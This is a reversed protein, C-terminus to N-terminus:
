SFSAASANFVSDNINVDFTVSDTRTKQLERFLTYSHGPVLLGQFGSTYNMNIEAAVQQVNISTDFRHFITILTTGAPVDANATNDRLRYRVQVKQTALGGGGVINSVSAILSGYILVQGNTPVSFTIDGQSTWTNYTAPSSTVNNVTFGTNFSEPANGSSAIDNNTVYLSTGLTGAGNPYWGSTSGYQNVSRVWFYRIGGAPITQFHSNALTSALLSGGAFDPTTSMWIETSLGPKVDWTLTAGGVTAEATLITYAPPKLATLNLQTM